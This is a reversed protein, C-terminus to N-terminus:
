QMQGSKKKQGVEGGGEIYRKTDTDVYTSNDRNKRAGKRGEKRGTKKKINSGVGSGARKGARRGTRM